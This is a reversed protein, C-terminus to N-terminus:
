SKRKNAPQASLRRNRGDQTAGSEISLDAMIIIVVVVFLSCSFVLGLWCRRGLWCGVGVWSCVRGHLFDVSVRNM